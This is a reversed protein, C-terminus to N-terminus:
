YFNKNLKAIDDLNELKEIGQLVTREQYLKAMNQILTIMNEEGSTNLENSSGM